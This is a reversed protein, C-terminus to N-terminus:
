GPRYVIQFTSENCQIATCARGCRGRKITGGATGAAEPANRKRGHTLEGGKLKCHIEPM